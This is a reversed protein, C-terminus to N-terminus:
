EWSGRSQLEEVVADQQLCLGDFYYDFESTALIDHGLDNVRSILQADTMQNLYM